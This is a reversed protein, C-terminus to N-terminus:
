PGFLKRIIDGRTLFGTLKGESTVPFQEVDKNIMMNAAEELGLEESICLVSRSMIDKVKLTSPVAASGTDQGVRPVHPLLGRMIDWESIIGLVEQKDGVVPLARLRRQVMLDLADRVPTAPTVPHVTHSMIDRVTLRPQLRLAAFDTASLVGEPSDALAIRDVTPQDSFIRALAAVTQLYLAAAELPALILAVIRPRRDIGYDAADVGRAAVGLAVVLREVAATRYHPLVVDPGALIIDRVRPENLGREVMAPDRLVGNRELRGLLEALAERLTTAALPASIHEVPLLDALTARDGPV